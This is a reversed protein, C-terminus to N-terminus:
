CRELAVSFLSEKWTNTVDRFVIFVKETIVGLSLGPVNKEV